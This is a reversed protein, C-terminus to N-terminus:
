ALGGFDSSM